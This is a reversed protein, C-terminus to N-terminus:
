RETVITLGAFFPQVLLSPMKPQPSPHAWPVMIPTGRALPYNQPPSSAARQLTYPSEATLQALVASSNNDWWKVM